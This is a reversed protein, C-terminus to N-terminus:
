TSLIPTFMSYPSLEPTAPPPVGISNLVMASVAVGCYGLNIQSEFWNTSQWYAAKFRSRALMRKGTPSYLSVLEAPLPLGATLHPEAKLRSSIATSEDTSHALLPCLILALFLRATWALRAHNSHNM